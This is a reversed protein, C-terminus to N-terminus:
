GARPMGRIQDIEFARRPHQISCERWSRVQGDEPHAEPVLANGEGEAALDDRSGLRLVAPARREPVVTDAEEGSDRLAGEDGAVVREGHALRKRSAEAHGRAAFIADHLAEFDFTPGDPAHLEMGLRDRALVSPLEDRVEHRCDIRRIRHPVARRVVGVPIRWVSIADVRGGVPSGGRPRFDALEEDRAAEDPARPCVPSSGGLGGRRDDVAVHEPTRGRADPDVHRVLVAPM